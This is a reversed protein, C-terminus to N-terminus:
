NGRAVEVPTYGAGFVSSQNKKDAMLLSVLKKLGDIEIRNELVEDQLSDLRKSNAEEQTLPRVMSVNNDKLATHLTSQAIHFGLKNSLEEALDRQSGAWECPVKPEGFMKKLEAYLESVQLRTLKKRTIKKQMQEKISCGKGNYDLGYYKHM